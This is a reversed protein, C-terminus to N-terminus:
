DPSSKSATPRVFDSALVDDDEPEVRESVYEPHPPPISVSGALISYLCLSTRGPEIWSYFYEDQYPPSWRRFFRMFSRKRARNKILKRVSRGGGAHIYARELRTVTEDNSKITYWGVIVLAATVFILVWDAFKFESCGIKRSAFVLGRRCPCKSFYDTTRVRPMIDSPLINAINSLYM